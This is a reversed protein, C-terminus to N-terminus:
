FPWLNRPFRKPSLQEVLKRDRDECKRVIQITATTRGNSKDLQGAEAPAFAIWQGIKLPDAPLAAGPVGKEWDDPILSSCPTVAAILPTPTQCASLGCALTLSLLTSLATLAPLRYSQM